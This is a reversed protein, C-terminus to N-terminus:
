DSTLQFKSLLDHNPNEARRNAKRVSIKSTKMFCKDMDGYYTVVEKKWQEELNTV